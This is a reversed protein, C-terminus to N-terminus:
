YLSKYFVMEQSFFYMIFVRLHLITIKKFKINHMEKHKVNYTVHWMKNVLETPVLLIFLLM